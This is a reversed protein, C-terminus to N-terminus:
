DGCNHDDFHDTPIHSSCDPCTKYDPEIGKLRDQIAIRERDSMTLYSSTDGLYELIWDTDAQSITVGQELEQIRSEAKKLEASVFDMYEQVTKKDKMDVKTM